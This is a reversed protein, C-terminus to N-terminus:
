LKCNEYLIIYVCIHTICQTEKVRRGDMKEIGVCQGNLMKTKWKLGFLSSAETDNTLNTMSTHIIDEKKFNKAKPKQEPAEQM